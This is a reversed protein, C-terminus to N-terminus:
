VCSAAQKLQASSHARDKRAYNYGDAKQVVSCYKHSIGDKTSGCILYIKFSGTMRIAVKGVWVGQNKGKPVVAKIIDGSQFGFAQKIRPLYSRPFGYKDLNTRCYSGRGVAKIQFVDLHDPIVFVNPVDGVCLADYYHEKPLDAQTRNWKTRGGSSVELEDVHTALMQYTSKRSSNVKAADKFFPSLGKELIKTIHEMRAKNLKTKSQTKLFEFWTDLNRSNKDHNCTHCAITLNKLRNTGGNRRSHMHEVELINDGSEGHCYQCQHGYRCLLYEKVEYGLLTGQQYEVGEINPNEMLQTDFRVTEVVIKNIPCYKMLRETWTDINDIISQVSPPLWGVKRTRNLFRAQRYRTKRNRRAKRMARRADLKSKISIRHQIEALLVVISASDNKEVIAVGTTKAGPDFKLVYEKTNPEVQQKLRVVFPFQKHVVAYGNTLLWRAKAPHCPNLPTKDKNLVFIM